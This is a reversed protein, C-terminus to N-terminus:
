EDDGADATGHIILSHGSSPVEVGGKKLRWIYIIYYLVHSSSGGGAGWRSNYEWISYINISGPM